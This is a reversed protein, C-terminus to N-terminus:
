KMQRPWVILWNKPLAYHNAQGPNHDPNHVIANVGTLRYTRLEWSDYVGMQVLSNVATGKKLKVSYGGLTCRNKM